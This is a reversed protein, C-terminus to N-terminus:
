VPFPPMKCSKEQSEATSVSLVTLKDADLAGARWLAALLENPYPSDYTVCLTDDLRLVAGEAAAGDFAVTLDARPSGEGYLRVAVGRERQLRGALAAGDPVRLALYRVEASLSEIARYLEQTVYEAAFALTTNRPSLGKQALYHRVIAAATARYLPAASLPVVGHKILVARDINKALLVAERVGRRTLARAAAHQSLRARLTDGGTVYVACFRVGEAARERPEEAAHDCVLGFM